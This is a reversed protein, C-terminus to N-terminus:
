WNVRGNTSAAMTPDGWAPVPTPSSPQWGGPMVNNNETLAAHSKAHDASGWSAEAPAGGGGGGGDGWAANTTDAGGGGGTGHEAGSGSSDQKTPQDSSKSTNQDGNNSDNNNDTPWESQQNPTSNDWGQEEGPPPQDAGKASSNGWQDPQQQQQQKENSAKAPSTRKGTNTPRPSNNSTGRPSGGMNSFASRKQRYYPNEKGPPLVNNGGAVDQDNVSAAPTSFAGKNKNVPVTNPDAAPPPVFAGGYAAYGHPPPCYANWIPMPMGQTIPVHELNSREPGREFGHYYPNQAPYPMGIPLPPQYPDRKPYLSHGHHSGYVQGDYIRVVNNEIDYYANPPPDEPTEVVRETHVVQTGTPKILNPRRAHPAPFSASHSPKTDGATANPTDSGEDPVKQAEKKSDAPTDKDNDSPAQETAEATQKKKKNKNKKQGKGDETEDTPGPESAKQETKSTNKNKKKGGKQEQKAADEEESDAVSEDETDTAESEADEKKCKEKEKAGAPRDKKGKLKKGKGANADKKPEDTESESTEPKKTCKKSQSKLKQRDRVCDKCTCTPDPESDESDTSEAAAKKTKKAKAKEKKLPQSDDSPCNSSDSSEAAAQAQADDTESDDEEESSASPTSNARRMASKKPADQFRVKKLTADRTSNAAKSSRGSRPYTIKLIDEETEDDTLVEVKVVNRRKPRKTPLPGLAAPITTGVVWECFLPARTGKRRAM